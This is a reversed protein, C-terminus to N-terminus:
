LHIHGISTIKDINEPIFINDNFKRLLKLTEQYYRDARYSSILDRIGKQKNNYFTRFQELLINSLNVMFFALNAANHIKEPKINMFDELGWFEKADRFNFEIQFRASYYDIIKEYNLELDTSFFIVHGVKQKAFKQIIVVNLETDFSKNLMKLQYIKMDKESKVLYKESINKYDLKQGYKKPRGFGSYKGTYRFYLASNYQLKSILYYSFEQCIKVCTNNGYSGDGVFYKVKLKMVQRLQLLQERLLRFTASLPKSSQINKSGKPRGRKTGKSEKRHKKQEHLFEKESETFILQSLLLPYSKKKEAFILSLGSFCLSKIPKQLLSSFFYDIGHTRKGSKSVTTEDSAILLESNLSFKMILLINLELWPITRGYFRDITKYCEETWRSINLMTKSGSMSLLAVIISKFTSFNGPFFIELCNLIVLLEPM